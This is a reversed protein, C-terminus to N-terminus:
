SCDIPQPILKMLNQLLNYWFITMEMSVSLELLSVIPFVLFFIKKESVVLGAAKINQTYCYKTTGKILGVLGYKTHLLTLYYDKYFRSVTGRPYIRAM